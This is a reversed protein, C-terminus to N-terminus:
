VVTPRVEPPDGGIIPALVVSAALPRAYGLAWPAPMWVAM